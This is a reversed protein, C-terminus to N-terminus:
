TWVYGDAVPARAPDLADTGTSFGAPYSRPQGGATTFARGAYVESPTVAV